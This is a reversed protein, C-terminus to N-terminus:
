QQRTEPRPAIGTRNKKRSKSAAPVACETGNSWKGRGVLFIKGVASRGARPLHGARDDARESSPPLDTQRPSGAAPTCRTFDHEALESTLSSLERHRGAFDKAARCDTKNEESGGGPCAPRLDRGEAGGRRRTLEEEERGRCDSISLRCDSIGGKGGEPYETTGTAWHGLGFAHWHFITRRFWPRVLIMVMWDRLVASKKAPAPVYYFNMPGHRLRLWVAQWCFGLLRMLKGARFGGIDELDDSVRADVHYVQLDPNERMGRLMLEVMVAQGHHPPPVHAVALIKIM